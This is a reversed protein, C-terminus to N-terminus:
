SKAAQLLLNTMMRYVVAAADLSLELISSLEDEELNGIMSFHTVQQIGAMFAVTGETTNHKQLDSRLDRLERSDPDLLRGLSSSNAYSAAAVIDFLELGSDALALSGACISAALEGGSEDLVLVFLEIRSKPYKSLIISESLADELQKGLEMEEESRPINGKSRSRAGLSHRRGGLDAYRFDCVLNGKDSGTSSQRPGYVCAVVKTDGMEM